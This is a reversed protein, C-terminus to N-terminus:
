STWYLVELADVQVSLDWVPVPLDVVMVPRVLPVAYLTWTRAVLLTPELPQDDDVVLVGAATGAAGAGVTLTALPVDRDTVQVAGAALPAAM